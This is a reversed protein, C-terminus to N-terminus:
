ILLSLTDIIAFEASMILKPTGYVYTEGFTQFPSNIASDLLNGDRIGHIGGTEEIDCIYIRHM